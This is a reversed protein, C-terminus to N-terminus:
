LFHSKAPHALPPSGSASPGYYMVLAMHTQLVMADGPVEPGPQTLEPTCTPAQGAGGALALSFPCTPSDQVAWGPLEGDGTKPAFGDRGAVAAVYPTKGVSRSSHTERHGPHPRSREPHLWSSASAASCGQQWTPPSSAAAPPSESHLSSGLM